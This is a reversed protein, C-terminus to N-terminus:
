DLSNPYLSYGIFHEHIIFVKPSMLTDYHLPLTVHYHNPEKEGELLEEVQFCSQAYSSMDSVAHARKDILSPLLRDYILEEKAKVSKM